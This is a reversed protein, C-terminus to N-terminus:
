ASIFTVLCHLGQWGASLFWAVWVVVGFLRLRGRRTSWYLLAYAVGELELAGVLYPLFHRAEYQDIQLAELVDQDTGWRSLDLRSVREKGAVVVGWAALVFALALVPLIWDWVYSGKSQSENAM